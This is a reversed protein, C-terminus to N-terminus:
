DQLSLEGESVIEEGGVLFLRNSVFDCCSSGLFNLVSHCDVETDSNGSTKWFYERWIDIDADLTFISHETDAM